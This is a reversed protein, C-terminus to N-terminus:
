DTLNLFPYSTNHGKQSYSDTLFPIGPLSSPATTLFIFGSSRNSLILKTGYPTLLEWLVKLNTNYFPVEEVVNLAAFTFVSLGNQHNIIYTQSFDQRSFFPTSNIISLCYSKVFQIRFSLSFFTM